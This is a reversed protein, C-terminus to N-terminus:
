REEILIKLNTSKAQRGRFKARSKPRIFTNGKDAKAIKVFLKEMNMNLRKANSEANTLVELIKISTLPFYKGDINEKQDILNNLFQKARSIKKKSIARCIVISQKLSIRAGDSKAVAQM